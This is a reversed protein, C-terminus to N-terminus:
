TPWQVLNTVSLSRPSDNGNQWCLRVTVEFTLDNPTVIIQQSASAANPLQAAVEALWATVTANSSAGGSSNCAGGSPNHAFSAATTRDSILMRALLQDALFTATGRDRADTSLRVANSQLSVLVLVGLSFVLVAILLEMLTFGGERRSHHGRRM